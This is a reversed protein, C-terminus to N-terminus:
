EVSKSAPKKLLFLSEVSLNIHIYCAYYQLSISWYRCQVWTFGPHSALTRYSLKFTFSVNIVIEVKVFITLSFMLRPLSCNNLLSNKNRWFCIEPFAFNYTDFIRNSEHQIEHVCAQTSRGTQRSVWNFNRFKFHVAANWCWKFM